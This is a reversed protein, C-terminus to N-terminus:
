SIEYRSPDEISQVQASITREDGSVPDVWIHAQDESIGQRAALEIIRKMGKIEDYEKIPRPGNETGTKYVYTMVGTPNGNLDVMERAKPVSRVWQTKVLVMIGDDGAEAFVKEVHDKIEVLSAGRHVPKGAMKCIATIASGKPPAGPAVKPTTTSAYWDKLFAGEFGTEQDVIRVTLSAIVKGDIFKGTDPDKKLDKFYVPDPRSGNLRVKVWYIGDPPPAPRLQRPIDDPDISPIFELFAPDTLDIVSPQSNEEIEESFQSM